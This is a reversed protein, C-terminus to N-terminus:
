EEGEVKQVSETAQKQAEEVAKLLANRIETIAEIADVYPAGHPVLFSYGENKVAVKFEVKGVTNIISM